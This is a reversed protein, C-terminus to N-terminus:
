TVPGCPYFLGVFVGFLCVSSLSAFSVKTKTDDELAAKLHDQLLRSPRSTSFSQGIWLKAFICEILDILASDTPNHVVTVPKGFM